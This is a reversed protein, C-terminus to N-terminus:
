GRGAPDGIVDVDLAQLLDVIVGAVSRHVVQEGDLGVERLARVELDGVQQVELHVQWRM